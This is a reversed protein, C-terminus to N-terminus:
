IEAHLTGLSLVDDDWHFLFIFSMSFLQDEAVCYVM